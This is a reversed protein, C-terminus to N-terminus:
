KKVANQLLFSYLDLYEDRIKKLSFREANQIGREILEERFAKDSIIRILAKKIEKTEYPNVIIAADGAVEPMSAVNSTIVPRGVSNAEIIPLGFGEYLSAFYLIDAEIYKNYVEELNLNHYNLYPLRYEKLILKQRDSLKGIISLVCPIDKVAEFLRDFNKHEGSGILLITPKTENFQKPRFKFVPNCPNHIVKIKGACWPFYQLIKKASFHSVTTIYTVKRFPLSLWFIKYIFKKLPHHIPNEFYGLDHVTLITKTKTLGLAIFNIDGTIHNLDSQIKGARIINKTRSLQPEYYFNKVNVKGTDQFSKKLLAFLEEISFNGERKDRNFFTINM